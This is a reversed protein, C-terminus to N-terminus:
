ISSPALAQASVPSRAIDVVEKNLPRVIRQDGFQRHAQRRSREGGGRFLRRERAGRRARRRRLADARSISSARVSPTRFSRCNRNLADVYAQDFEVAVFPTRSIAIIMPRRRRACPVRRAAARISCDRRRISSVGTKSFASRRRAEIEIAEGIFRISNVNKIECRTGLPEGPRRVSVNVDARPSGEEM